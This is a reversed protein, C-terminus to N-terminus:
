RFPAGSAWAVLSRRQGRTVPTVRHGMYSPFFVATGQHRAQPNAGLGVLELDGGDYDGSDTLQITMSLKRLSTQGRGIDMHWDFHQGPGYETYQLADFMGVLDFGYRANVQRFLAGLKHYLWHQAETAEIWAIHSVRYTDEGLEVRGDIPPLAKGAASVADCEAASLVGPVCLVSSVSENLTMDQMQGFPGLGAPWALVSHGGRDELGTPLLYQLPLRDTPTNEDSM